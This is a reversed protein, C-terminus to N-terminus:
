IRKRPPPLTNGGHSWDIPETAARRACYAQVHPVARSLFEPEPEIEVNTNVAPAADPTPQRIAAPDRQTAPVSKVAPKTM